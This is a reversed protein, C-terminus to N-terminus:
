VFLSWVEISCGPNLHLYNNLIRSIGFTSACILWLNRENLLCFIEQIFDCRQNLLNRRGPYAWSITPHFQKNV